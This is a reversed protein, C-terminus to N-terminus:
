DAQAADGQPGNEVLRVNELTLPKGCESCIQGPKSLKGCEAHRLMLPPADETPLWENGYRMLELLLPFLGLGSDTLGYKYRVPREQYPIKEVLGAEILRNLRGTLINTAAGTQNQLDDFRQPGRFLARLVLLIWEDGILRASRVIPCTFPAAPKCPKEMTNM